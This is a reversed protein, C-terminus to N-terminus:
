FFFLFHSSGGPFLRHSGPQQQRQQGPPGRQQQQQRGEGSEEPCTLIKKWRRDLCPWQPPVKNSLSLRFDHANSNSRFHWISQGDTWEVTGSHLMRPINCPYFENEEASFLAYKLVSSTSDILKYCADSMNKVLGMLTNM